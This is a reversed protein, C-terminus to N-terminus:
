FPYRDYDTIVSSPLENIPFKSGFRGLRTEQWSQEHTELQSKNLDYNIVFAFRSDRCLPDGLLQDRLSKHRRWGGTLQINCSEHRGLVKLTHKWIRSLTGCGFPDTGNKSSMRGSTAIGLYGSGQWPEHFADAYIYLGGFCDEKLQILSELPNPRSHSFGLGLDRYVRDRKEYWQPVPGLFRLRLGGDPLKVNRPDPEGSELLLQRSRPDVCSYVEFIDHISYYPTWNYQAM